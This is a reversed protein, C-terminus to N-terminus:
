KVVGRRFIDLCAPGPPASQRATQLGDPLPKGAKETRCKAEKRLREVGNPPRDAWASFRKWPSLFVERVAAQM